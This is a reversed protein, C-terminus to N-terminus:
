FQEAEDRFRREGEDRIPTRFRTREGPNGLKAHAACGCILITRSDLIRTRALAFAVPRGPCEKLELLVLHPFSRENIGAGTTLAM